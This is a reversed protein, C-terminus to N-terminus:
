RRGRGSQYNDTLRRLPSSIPKGERQSVGQGYRAPQLNVDHPRQPNLLVCTEQAIIDSRGEPCLYDCKGSMRSLAPLPTPRFICSPLTPMLSEHNDHCRGTLLGVGEGVFEQRISMCVGM